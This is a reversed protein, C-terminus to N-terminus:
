QLRDEASEEAGAIQNAGRKFRLGARKEAAGREYKMREYACTYATFIDLKHHSPPNKKEGGGRKRGAAQALPRRRSTAAAQRQSIQSM